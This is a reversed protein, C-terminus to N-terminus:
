ETAPPPDTDTWVDKRKAFAIDSEGPRLGDPKDRPVGDSSIGPDSGTGRTRSARRTFGPMYKSVYGGLDYQSEEKHWEGNVYRNTNEKVIIMGNEDVTFVGQAYLGETVIDAAQKLGNNKLYAKRLANKIYAEKYKKEGQEQEQAIINEYSNLTRRLREREDLIDAAISIKQAYEKTKEENRVTMEDIAKMVEEPLRDPEKLYPKDAMFAEISEVDRMDEYASDFLEIDGGAHVYERRTQLYKKKEEYQAKGDDEKDYAALANRLKNREEVIAAAIDVKRALMEYEIGVNSTVEDIVQMVDEPLEDSEKLYPNDELFAAASEADKIANYVVDFSDERGGAHLYERRLTLYERQEDYAKKGTNEIETIADETSELQGKLDNVNGLRDVIKLYKAKRKEAEEKVGSLEKQILEDLQAQTIGTESNSKGHPNQSMKIM